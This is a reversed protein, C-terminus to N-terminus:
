RSREPLLRFSDLFKVIDRSSLDKEVALVGVQYLRNKVFYLRTQLARAGEPLSLKLERGPFQQLTIKTESLLRGRVNAIIGDRAGDLVKEPNTGKVMTEPYDNYAVMYEAGDHAVVFMYLDIAGAPSNVRQPQPTPTGPMLVSFGGEDSRFEKWKLWQCSLLLLVFLCQLLRRRCPLPISKM